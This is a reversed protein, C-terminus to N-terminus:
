WPKRWGFNPETPGVEPPLSPPPQSGVPPPPSWPAVADSRVRGKGRPRSDSIVSTGTRPGSRKDASSWPSRVIPM